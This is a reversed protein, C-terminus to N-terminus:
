IHKLRRTGVDIALDAMKERIDNVIPVTRGKRSFVEVYMPMPVTPLWVYQGFQSISEEISSYAYNDNRVPKKNKNQNPTHFPFVECLRQYKEETMAKKSDEEALPLYGDSVDLPKSSLLVSMYKHGTYWLAASSVAILRLLNEASLYAHSDVSIARASVWKLVNMHAKSHFVETSKVNMLFLDILEKPINPNINRAVIYPNSAVYDLEVTEGLSLPTMQRYMEAVTRVKGSETPSPKKEKLVTRRDVYTNQGRNSNQLMYGYILTVLMKKEDAFYVDAFSLRRFCIGAVMHMVYDESSVSKLATQPSYKDAGTMEDIYTELKQIAYCDFLHSKQLLIFCYYDLFSDGTEPKIRNSYEGWIPVITKLVITLLSLQVYDRVTYTKERTTNKDVSREFTASVSSPVPLPFKHACWEGIEEFQHEELLAACLERLQLDLSNRDNGSEFVFHCKEYIDFIKQQRQLPLSKWWGNIHFFVDTKAEPKKAKGMHQVFWQLSKEIEGTVQNTWEVFVSQPKSVECLRISIM